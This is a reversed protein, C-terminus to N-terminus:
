AQYIPLILLETLLDSFSGYILIQYNAKEVKNLKAREREREGGVRVERNKSKVGYYTKSSSSLLPKLYQCYASPM